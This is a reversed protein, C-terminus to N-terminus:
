GTDLRALCPPSHLLAVQKYCYRAMAYVMAMGITIRDTGQPGPSSDCHMDRQPIKCGNNAAFPDKSSRNGSDVFLAGGRPPLAKDKAGLPRLSASPVWQGPHASNVELPPRAVPPRPAIPPRTSGEGKKRGVNLSRQLPHEVKSSYLELGPLCLLQTAESRLQEPTITALGSEDSGSDEELFELPNWAWVEDLMITHTRSPSTYRMVPSSTNV